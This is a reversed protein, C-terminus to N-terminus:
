DGEPLDALMAEILSEQLWSLAIYLTALARIVEEEASEALEAVREADAADTIDLRQALVLRLDTLVGAWDMAREAPVDIRGSPNQLDWWVRRLREGKATRVSEETLRRLERAIEEDESAPPLLRALAPDDPLLAADELTVDDPDAGVASWDIAPFGQGDTQPPPEAGIPSGLLEAVDAVVRGLIEREIEDMRTRYGHRSRRFAQM